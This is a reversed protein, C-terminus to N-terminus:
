KKVIDTESHEQHEAQDSPEQDSPDQQEAQDAQVRDAVPRKGTSVDRADRRESPSDESSWRFQKQPSCVLMTWRPQEATRKAGTAASALTHDAVEGRGLLQQYSCGTTEEVSIDDPSRLALRLQGLEAAMLLKEAQDPTVLLSAARIDLPASDHEANRVTESNVAFVRVARLITKSISERNSNSRIVVVLDVRDGPKVLNSVSSEMNVKVSVVRYGLPVKLTENSEGAALVKSMLIPEGPYLRTRAHTDALKQLESVTGKPLRNRPWEVLELKDGNLEENINIEHTAVLIKVSPIEATNHNEGMYRAAGVAAVLGCALAIAILLVPKM